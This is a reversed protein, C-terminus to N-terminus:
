AIPLTAQFILSGSSAFNSASAAGASVASAYIYLKNTAGNNQFHGLFQFGTVDMQEPKFRLALNNPGLKINRPLTVGASAGASPKGSWRIAARVFLMNGDLWWEGQQITYTFGGSLGSDFNIAPTWVGSTAPLRPVRLMKNSADSVALGSAVSVAQQVGAQLRVDFVSSGMPSNYVVNTASVSSRGGGAFDVAYKTNWYRGGVVSHGFCDAGFRIGVNDFTHDAQGDVYTGVLTHGTSGGIFDIGVEGESPKCQTFTYCDGGRCQWQITKSNCNITHVRDFTLFSCEQFGDPDGARSEYVHIGLGSCNRMEIDQYEHDFVSQLYMGVGNNNTGRIDFFKSWLGVRRVDLLKGTLGAGALSFGGFEVEFAAGQGSSGWGLGWARVADFTGVPSITCVNRGAGHIKAAVNTTQNVLQLTGTTKYNDGAVGYVVRGKTQSYAIARNFGATDDVVNDGALGCDALTLFAVNRRKWRKGDTTVICDVGNDASVTDSTDAYWDAGGRLPHSSLYGIVPIRQGNTIPEITRLTAVDPCAGILGGGTPAALDGRLVVDTRPEYGTVATPDTGPAVVHPLVGGWSYWNDDGSPAPNYICKDADAVGLTGGTVFTFSAPKFGLDKIAKEYTPHTVGTVPNTSTGSPTGDILEAFHDIRVKTNQLDVLSPIEGSM